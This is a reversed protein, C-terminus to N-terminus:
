FINLLTDFDIFVIFFRAMNLLALLQRKIRKPEQILCNIGVYLKAFSIKFVVKCEGFGYVFHSNMKNVGWVRNMWPKFM